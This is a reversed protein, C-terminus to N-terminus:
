GGGSSQPMLLRIVFFGALALLIPVIIWAVSIFGLLAAFFMIGLTAGIGTVGSIMYSKGTTVGTIIISIGIGVAILLFYIKVSFGSAVAVGKFFTSLVNTDENFDVDQFTTVVGTLDFTETCTSDGKVIGSTGSVSFFREIVEISTPNVSDRAFISIKYNNGTLNATFPVGNSDTTFVLTSGSSINGTWGSNQVNSNNSYISVRGNIDDGDDDTIKVRIELSTNQLWTQKTCPNLFIEEICGPESGCGKNTTADNLYWLNAGDFIFLDETTVDSNPNETIVTSDEFGNLYILFLDDGDSEITHTGYTSLVEDRSNTNNAEIMHIQNHWSSPGMTVNYPTTYDFTEDESFGLLGEKQRSGCLLQFDPNFVGVCYDNDADAYIKAKAVNSIFEGDVTAVEPHDDIFDGDDDFIFMKFKFLPGTEGTPGASVIELKGDNDAEAEVPLATSILKYFGQSFCKDQGASMTISDGLNHDKSVESVVTLNNDKSVQMTEIHLTELGTTVQLWSFVFENVGDNDVDAVAVSRINSHCAVQTNGAFTFLSTGNLGTGDYANSSATRNFGVARVHSNTGENKFYVILCLDRVDDCGVISSNTGSDIGNVTFSENNQLHTGNWEYVNIHFINSVVVIDMLGDNDLDTIVHHSIGGQRVAVPIDFELEETLTATSHIYLKTGTLSVIEEVGDNDVDAVLPTTIPDVLVVTSSTFNSEANATSTEGLFDYNDGGPNNYALASFSLLVFLSFLFFLRPLHRLM